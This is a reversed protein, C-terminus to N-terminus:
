DTEFSMGEAVEVWTGDNAAFSANFVFSVEHDVKGTKKDFTKRYYFWRENSIDPNPDKKIKDPRGVAKIVEDRTKGLTLKVFEDHDLAKKGNITPAPKSGGLTGGKGDGKGESRGSGSAVLVAIGGGVLLVMGLVCGVAILGMRTNTTM